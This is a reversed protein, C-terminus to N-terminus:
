EQHALSIQLIMKSNRIIFNQRIFSKFIKLSIRTYDPDPARSPRGATCPPARGSRRGAPIGRPRPSECGAWRESPCSRHWGETKKGTQLHLWPSFSIHSFASLCVKSQNFLLFTLFPLCATKWMRSLLNNRMAPDLSRVQAYCTRYLIAFNLSNSVDLRKDSWHPSIHYEKLSLVIIHFANRFVLIKIIQAQNINGPDPDGDLEFRPDPNANVLRSEM